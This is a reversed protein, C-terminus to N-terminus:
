LRGEDVAVAARYGKAMKGSGLLRSVKLIPMFITYDCKTIANYRGTQAKIEM